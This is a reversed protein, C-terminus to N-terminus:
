IVKCTDKILNIIDTFGDFKYFTYYIALAIIISFVIIETFTQVFEHEITKFCQNAKKILAEKQEIATNVDQTLIYNQKTMQQIQKVYRKTKSKLINFSLCPYHYSLTSATKYDNFNPLTAIKDYCDYDNMESLILNVVDICDNKVKIPIPYKSFCDKIEQRMLLFYKKKIYMKKNIKNNNLIFLYGATFFRRGRLANLLCHLQLPILISSNEDNESDNSDNNIAVIFRNTKYYEWNPSNVHVFKADNIYIQKTTNTVDTM